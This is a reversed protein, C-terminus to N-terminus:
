ALHYTAFPPLFVTFQNTSTKTSLSFFLQLLFLNEPHLSQTTFSFPHKVDRQFGSFLLSSPLSLSLSLPLFLHLPLSPYSPSFSLFSLFSSFLFSSFPSFSPTSSFSPVSSFLSQTFHISYCYFLLFLVFYYCIYYFIKLIGIFIADIQDLVTIVGCLVM